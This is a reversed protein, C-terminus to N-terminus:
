GKPVELSDKESEMGSALTKALLRCQEKTYKELAVRAAISALDKEALTDPADDRLIFDAYEKAVLKLDLTTEAYRRASQGIAERLEKQGALRKMAGYIEAIEEEPTMEKVSQLKVCAEGPLEGFSGINNVVVCKGKALIRMLSGSTEGNYPWRLNLCVDTADIYDTFEDINVYGTVKLASFATNPWKATLGSRSRRWNVWLSLRANEYEESLRAFAEVLPLTFKSCSYARLVRLDDQGREAGAKKQKAWMPCGKKNKAYLPIVQVQRGINKQRLKKRPKGQQARNNKPM